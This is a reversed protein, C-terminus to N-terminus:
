RNERDVGLRYPYSALGERPHSSILIPLYKGSTRINPTTAAMGEASARGLRKLLRTKAGCFKQEGRDSGPLNKSRLGSGIRAIADLLAGAASRRSRVWGGNRCRDASCIRTHDRSDCLHAPSRCRGNLDTVLLYIRPPSQGSKRCTKESVRCVFSTSSRCSALDFQNLRHGAASSGCGWMPLFVDHYHDGYHCGLCDQKLCDQDLCDEGVIV